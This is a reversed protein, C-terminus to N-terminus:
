KAYRSDKLRDVAEDSRKFLERTYLSPSTRPITRTAKEQLFPSKVRGSRRGVITVVNEKPKKTREPM